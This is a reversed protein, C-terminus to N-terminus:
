KNMSNVLHMMLKLQQHHPDGPSTHARFSEELSTALDSLIQPLMESTVRDSVDLVLLAAQLWEMKVKIEDELEFGLQQVLSCLSPQSLVPPSANLVSVGLRSCLSVVLSVDSQSLAVRFAEETNAADLHQQITQAPDAVAAQAAAAGLSAAIREHHETAQRLNAEAQYLGQVAGRAEFPASVREELGAQFTQNIQSFMSQVSREFSPLLVEGFSNRFGEKIPDKM